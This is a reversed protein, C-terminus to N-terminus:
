ARAPSQLRERAVPASDPPRFLTLLEHSARRGFLKGIFGSSEAPITM